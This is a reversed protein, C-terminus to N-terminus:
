VSSPSPTHSMFYRIAAICPGLNDLHGYHGAGSLTVLGADPIQEELYAVQRDSVATDRDGRFILTPVRIEKVRDDLYRNVTKVFTERMVGSAQQYDSSGLAKWLATERLRGLGRERLTGPLLAFPAKLLKAISSRFYYNWSREPTIGSPSILILREILSAYKNCSAMYLAIRGGNSHGLITVPHRKRTELLRSVLAAFEPIGWPEEPPPSEGHGPLDVLTLEFDDALARGLPEMDLMSSGWGHLVLIAPGGAGITRTNLQNLPYPQHGM